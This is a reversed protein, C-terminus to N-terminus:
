LLYLTVGTGSQREKEARAFDLSWRLMSANAHRQQIVRLYANQLARVSGTENRPDEM